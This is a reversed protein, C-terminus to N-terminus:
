IRLISREATYNTAMLTLQKEWKTGSFQHHVYSHFQQLEASLGTTSEESYTDILKPRCQSYSEIETSSSTVSTPV